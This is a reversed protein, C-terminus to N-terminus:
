ISKIMRWLLLGGFIQLGVASLLINRGTPDAWMSMMHEPNRSVLFGAIAAPLLGLVWATVRTEGTMAKLERQMQEKQRILNVVSELMEKPSGGYVRSTHIALALMHLEKVDYFNAAERMAEGLDAGLDVNKQARQILDRLPSELDETALKIAGEINRGTILGRIVQDIFLPVQSILKNIKQRYRIQPILIALVGFVAWWLVAAQFGLTKMLIMGGAVVFAGLMLATSPALPIGVRRLWTGLAAEIRGRQLGASRDSRTLFAVEELRQQVKAVQAIRQARLVLLVAALMLVLAVFVFILAIVM